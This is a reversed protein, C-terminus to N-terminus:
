RWSWQDQIKHTTHVAPGVKRPFDKFSRRMYFRHALTAGVTVVGRGAISSDDGKDSVSLWMLVAPNLVV